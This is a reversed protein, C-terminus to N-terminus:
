RETEDIIREFYSKVIFDKIRQGNKGDVNAIYKDRVENQQQKMPHEEKAVM